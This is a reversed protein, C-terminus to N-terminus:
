RLDGLRHAGYTLSYDIFTSGTEPSQYIYVVCLVSVMLNLSVYLVAKSLASASIFPPTPYLLLILIM